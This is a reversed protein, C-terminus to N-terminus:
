ALVALNLWLIVQLRHSDKFADVGRLSYSITTAILAVGIYAIFLRRVRPRQTSRYVTLLLAVAGTLVSISAGLHSDGILPPAIMALFILILVPLFGDPGILNRWAEVAVNELQSVSDDPHSHRTASSLAKRAVRDVHENVKDGVRGRGERM